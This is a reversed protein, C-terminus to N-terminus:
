YSQWWDGKSRPDLFSGSDRVMVRVESTKATGMKQGEKLAPLSSRGQSNLSNYLSVLNPDVCFGEMHIAYGEIAGDDGTVNMSISTPSVYVVMYQYGAGVDYGNTPANVSQGPSATFGLVHVPWAGEYSSSPQNNAWDWQHIKYAKVFSAGKNLITGLQPAKPDPAEGNPYGYSVLNLSESVEGWGRLFVNVDPNSAVNSLPPNLGRKDYQEGSSTPCNANPPSTPTKTPSKTPTKTAKPKVTPQGSQTPAVTSYPSTPIITSHPPIPTTFNNGGTPAISPRPANTIFGFTNTQSQTVSPVITEPKPLLSSLFLSSRSPISAIYFTDVKPSDGVFFRKGIFFVLIFALVM